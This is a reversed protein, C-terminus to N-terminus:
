CWNTLNSCQGEFIFRESILTASEFGFSDSVKRRIRIWVSYNLLLAHCISSNFLFVCMNERNFFNEEYYQVWFINTPWQFFVKSHNTGFYIDASDSDTDSFFNQPDSFFFKPDVVSDSIFNRGWVFEKFFVSVLMIPWNLPDWPIGPVWSWLQTWMRVISCTLDNPIQNKVIPM